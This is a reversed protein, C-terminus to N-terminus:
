QAGEPDPLPGFRDEVVSRMLRGFHEHVEDHAAVNQIDGEIIMQHKRDLLAAHTAVSAMGILNHTVLVIALDQSERLRDLLQLMESEAVADMASTPEDLILINPKSVLARAMLVRQKQGESLERLPRRALPTTDTERM